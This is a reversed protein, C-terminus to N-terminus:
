DDALSNVAAQLKDVPVAQAERWASYREALTATGATAPLVADLRRHAAEFTEEDVRQPRVGYCSEVEDSFRIPEGALRRATTLLGEVQAAIWHRRAADVTDDDAGAVLDALLRRADDALQGPPKPAATANAREALDPPGYYADVM